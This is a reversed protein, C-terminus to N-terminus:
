FNSVQLYVDDINELPKGDITVSTISHEARFEEDLAPIILELASLPVALTLSVSQTGMSKFYMSDNYVGSHKALSAKFACAEKLTVSASDKKLVITVQQFQQIECLDETIHSFIDISTKSAFKEFEDEYKKMKQKLTNDGFKEILHKLLEYDIYSELYKQLIAFIEHVNSAKAIQKAKQKLLM